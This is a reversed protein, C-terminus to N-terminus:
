HCQSCHMKVRKTYDYIIYSTYVIRNLAIIHDKRKNCSPPVSRERASHRRQGLVKVLHSTYSAQKQSHVYSPTKNPELQRHTKFFM